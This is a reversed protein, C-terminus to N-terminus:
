AHAARGRTRRRAMLAIGAIGAAACAGSVVWPGAPTSQERSGAPAALTVAATTGPTEGAVGPSPSTARAWGGDQARAISEGPGPAPSEAGSESVNRSYRVVDAVQGNPAILRVTDGDNNLGEGIVGDAVRVVRVGDPLVAGRGAVVVVGGPEVAMAPIADTAKADGVRWGDTWVAASSRNVLEVWEFQGDNGAETPDSVVESLQLEPPGGTRPPKPVTVPELREDRAVPTTVPRTTPPPQGPQAAGGATVPDPHAVSFAADDFLAASAELPRLMLRFRASLAGRPAKVVGTDLM